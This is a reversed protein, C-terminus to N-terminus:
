IKTWGAWMNANLSVNSILPLRPTKTIIASKKITWNATKITINETTFIVYIITTKLFIKQQSCAHLHYWYHFCWIFWQIFLKIHVNKCHICKKWSNGFANRRHTVQSGSPENCESSINTLFRSQTFFSVEINRCIECCSAWTLKNANKILIFIIQPTSYYIWM